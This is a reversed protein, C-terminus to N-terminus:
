RMLNRIRDRNYNIIMNGVPEDDMKEPHFQKLLGTAEGTADIRIALEVVGDESVHTIYIGYVERLFDLYPMMAKLLFGQMHYSNVVFNQLTLLAGPAYPGYLETVVNRVRHRTEPEGPASRHNPIEEPLKNLLFAMVLQFGRCTADLFIEPHDLATKILVLDIQDAREDYDGDIHASSSNLIGTPVVSRGVHRGGRIQIADQRAALKAVLELNNFWAQTVPMELVRSDKPLVLYYNALHGILIRNKNDAQEDIIRATDALVNIEKQNVVVQSSPQLLFLQHDLEPTLVIGRFSPYRTFGPVPLSEVTPVKSLLDSYTLQESWGVM